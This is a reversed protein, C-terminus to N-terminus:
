RRLNVAGSVSPASEGMRRAACSTQRLAFRSQDVPKTLDHTSTGVHIYTYLRIDRALFRSCLGDCVVLIAGFATVPDVNHKNAKLIPAPIYRASRGM